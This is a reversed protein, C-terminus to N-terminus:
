DEEKQVRPAALPSDETPEESGDDRDAALSLTPARRFPDDEDLGDEDAAHPTKGRGNLRGSRRGPAESDAGSDGEDSDKHFGPRHFRHGKSKKPTLLQGLLKNLEVVGIVRRGWTRSVVMVESVEQRAMYKLTKLNTDHNHVFHRNFPTLESLEKTRNGNLLDIIHTGEIPEIAKRFEEAKAFFLFRNFWDVFVVYKFNPFRKLNELYYLFVDRQLPVTRGLFHFDVKSPPHLKVKLMIPQDEELKAIRDQLYAIYADQVFDILEVDNQDISPKVHSKPASFLGQKTIVFNEAQEPEQRYALSFGVLFALLIVGLLTSDSVGIYTEMLPTFYPSFADFAVMAGIAVAALVLGAFFSRVWSEM